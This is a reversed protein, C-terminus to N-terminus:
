QQNYYLVQPHCIDKKQLSNEMRKQNKHRQCWNLAYCVTLEPCSSSCLFFSLISIHFSRSTFFIPIFYTISLFYRLSVDCILIFPLPCKLVTLLMEQPFLLYIQSAKLSNGWTDESSEALAAPVCPYWLSVIVALLEEKILCWTGHGRQCHGNKKELLLWKRIITMKDTPVPNCLNTAHTDVHWM